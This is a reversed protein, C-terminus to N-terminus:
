NLLLTWCVRLNWFKSFIAGAHQGAGHIFRGGGKLEKTELHHSMVTVTPMLIMM